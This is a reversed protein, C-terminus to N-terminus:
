ALVAPRRSCPGAMTACFVLDEDRDASLAERLLEPSTAGRADQVAVEGDLLATTCDLAQVRPILSKYRETWDVGQQTLFKVADGDKRVITRYGGFKIEHLWGSVDPP